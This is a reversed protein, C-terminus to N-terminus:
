DDIVSFKYRKFKKAEVPTSVSEPLQRKKGQDSTDTTPDSPETLDLSKVEIPFTEQDAEPDSEISQDSFDESVKLDVEGQEKTPKIGSGSQIAIAKIFRDSEHVKGPEKPTVPKTILLPDSSTQSNEGAKKFFPIVRESGFKRILPYVTYQSINNSFPKWHGGGSM